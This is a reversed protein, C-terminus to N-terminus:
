RYKCKAAFCWNAAHIPEGCSECPRNNYHHREKKLEIYMHDIEQIRLGVAVYEDAMAQSIHSSRQKKFVERVTSPSPKGLKKHLYARKALLDQKIADLYQKRETFSWELRWQESVPTHVDFFGRRASLNDLDLTM